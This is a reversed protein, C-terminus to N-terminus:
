QRPQTQKCPENTLSCNGVASNSPPPTLDAEVYVPDTTSDRLRRRSYFVTDRADADAFRVKVLGPRATQADPVTLRAPLRQASVISAESVGLSQCLSQVTTLLNQSPVDQIGSFILNLYRTEPAPPPRTGPPPSSPPHAAHTELASLRAEHQLLRQEVGELATTHQNQVAITGQLQREIVEIRDLKTSMRAQGEELRRLADLVANQASDSASSPFAFTTAAAPNPRSPSPHMWLPASRPSAAASTQAAPATSPAPSSTPNPATSPSVATLYSSVVPPISSMLDGVQPGNPESTRSKRTARKIILGPSRPFAVRKSQASTSM